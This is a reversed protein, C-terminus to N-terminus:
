IREPAEAPFRVHFETGEGPSSSVTIGGGLIESAIRYSVSLGLGTGGRGLRTTFFPDFIRGMTVADMGCGNDEVILEMWDEGFARATIRVLGKDRGEFAHVFVNQLLNTLVQGLPGPYSDCMLGAPVDVSVEIDRHKIGPRMSSVIDEVLEDLDFRRRRESTQDAAVQKFSTILGASRRCSRVLIDSIEESSRLFENMQTRGLTGAELAQRLRKVETALASAATLSNGIPTNLEHSVGAVMAGLSAMKEAHVLEEQASSLYGLTQELERTREEVRRELSQNLAEVEQQSQRLADIQGRLAHSLEYVRQLQHRFGEGLFGAFVGALVAVVIITILYSPPGRWISVQLVGFSELVFVVSALLITAAAMLFAASQGILWGTMTILLPYAMAIPTRVGMIMVVWVSTTVWGLWLFMQLGKLLRGRSMYWLSALGILSFIAGPFNEVRFGTVSAFWLAAIVGSVVLTWMFRNLLKVFEPGLHQELEEDTLRTDAPKPVAKM